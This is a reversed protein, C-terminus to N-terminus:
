REVPTQRPSEEEPTHGRAGSIREDAVRASCKGTLFRCQSDFSCPGYQMCVTEM